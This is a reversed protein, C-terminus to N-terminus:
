KIDKKYGCYENTCILQNNEQKLKCGCKMCHNDIWYKSTSTQPHNLYDTFTKTFEKRGVYDFIDYNNLKRNFIDIYKQRINEGFVRQKESKGSLIPIKITVFDQTLIRKYEM